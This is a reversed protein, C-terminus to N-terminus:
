EAQGLARRVADMAASESVRFVAGEGARTPVAFRITDSRRKKDQGLYDFVADAELGAATAPLSFRALLGLLRDLVEQSCWGQRQALWAEAAMGVSVARGHSLRYESAAELAHGITHGFNLLEREGRDHLDREVVRVKELAARRILAANNLVDVPESLTELQDLLTASRVFAIKMMEALGDAIREAPLSGLVDPDIMVLQAPYFAGIMNKAAQFDVGVKGGISADVQALLTTPMLVLRVGRMYTAAVMGALDGIVGGGLGIIVADRGLHSQMCSEFLRRLSDITKHDEGPPLVRTFVAYDAEVLSQRVAVTTDLGAVTADTVLMVPGDLGYARLTQATSGLLGREVLIRSCAPVELRMEALEGLHLLRDIEDVVDEPSRATTDVQRFCAYAPAREQFLQEIRRVPNSTLLPRDASHAIRRHLEPLGCDLCIVMQDPRLLGRNGESILAGGGTAIVRGEGEASLERLLERELRRFTAEGHEAFIASITSGTRREIECDLDVFQLGYLHAILRGVTTKGTGMFGTLILDRM